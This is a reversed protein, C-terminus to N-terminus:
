TIIPFWVEQARLMRLTKASYTGMKLKRGTLPVKYVIIMRTWNLFSVNQLKRLIRVSSKIM